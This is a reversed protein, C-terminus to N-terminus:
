MGGKSPGSGSYWFPQAQAPVSFASALTAVALAVALVIHKMRAEEAPGNAHGVRSGGRRVKLASLFAVLRRAMTWGSM